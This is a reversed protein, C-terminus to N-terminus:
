HSKQQKKRPKGLDCFPVELWFMVLLYNDISLVQPTLYMREVVTLARAQVLIAKPLKDLVLVMFDDISRSRIRQTIHDHTQSLLIGVKGLSTLFM